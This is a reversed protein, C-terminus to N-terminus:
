WICFIEFCTFFLSVKNHLSKTNIFSTLLYNYLDSNLNQLQTEVNTIDWLSIIPKFLIWIHSLKFIILILESYKHCPNWVESNDTDDFHLFSQHIIWKWNSETNKLWLIIIELETMWSRRYKHVRGCLMVPLHICLSILYM